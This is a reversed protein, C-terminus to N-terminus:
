VGIKAVDIENRSWDNPSTFLNHQTVLPFKRWFYQINAGYLFVIQSDYNLLIEFIFDVVVVQTTHEMSKEDLFKFPM